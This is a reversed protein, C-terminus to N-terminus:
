QEVRYFPANPFEVSIMTPQISKKILYDLMSKYVQLKLANDGNSNGFYVKWGQPDSWGLGYVPDFIMTANQPLSPLLTQIAKSLDSTLFPRPGVPQDTPVPMSNDQTRNPVSPPSGAATIKPLGDIQGHPPFAYGLADIWIEQGDQYWAAVPKREEVSVIVSGPLNIVVKATYIDPISALINNQIQIPDLFVAPKNEIRLVSQIEQITVRNNGEIEANHAIFPDINLMLYMDVICFIAIILSLWRPGFSFHPLRFSLSHSNASNYNQSQNGYPAGMAIDYRHQWRSTLVPSGLRSGPNNRPSNKTGTGTINSKNITKPMPTAKPKAVNKENLRDRQKQEEEKRRRIAEARTITTRDPSM